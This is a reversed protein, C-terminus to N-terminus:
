INPLRCLDKDKTLLLSWAIKHEPRKQTKSQSLGHLWHIQLIDSSVTFSASFYCVVLQTRTTFAATCSHLDHVWYIKRGASLRLKFTEHLTPLHSLGTSGAPLNVSQFLDEIMMECCYAQRHYRGSHLSRSEAYLIFDLSALNLLTRRSRRGHLNCSSCHKLFHTQQLFTRFLM